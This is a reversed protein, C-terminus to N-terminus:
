THTQYRARTLVTSLHPLEAQQPTCFLMTEGTVTFGLKQQVRLSAGNGVFMGSTIVDTPLSAFLEAVLGAVAESMYGKGWYPEGLWYGINPGAPKSGSAPRDRWSIGGMAVGEHEIVLYVEYAPGEELGRRVHATVRELSNPWAPASLWRVVNWNNFLAFLTVADSIAVPRLRLRSTEIVDRM